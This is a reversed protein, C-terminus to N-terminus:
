VSHWPTMSLQASGLEDVAARAVESLTPFSEYHNVVSLYSGDARRMVHLPRGDIRVEVSPMEVVAARRTGGRDDAGSAPVAFTATGQIHRGRYMETFRELGPGPTRTDRTKPGTRRALIPALVGATGAIVGITFVARLALRRTLVAGGMGEAGSHRTLGM